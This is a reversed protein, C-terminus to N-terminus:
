VITVTNSSSISYGQLFVISDLAANFGATNDNFAVYTGVPGTTLKFALSTNAAFTTPIATFSTFLSASTLVTNFVGPRDLRDGAQYDTIVDFNAALSDALSTFEFTDISNIGGFGTLTDKGLGGRINNNSTNGTISDNFATGIVDEFQSVTFQLALTAAGNLVSFSVNPSASNALNVVAGTAAAGGTAATGALSLDIVDGGLSFGVITEVGVLQDVGLSGKNVTGQAGLKVPGLMSYNVTDQAGAGGDLLDNGNSGFIIDNGGGGSIANAVSSGILLDDFGSGILNEIDILTDNGASITNQISSTSLDVKVGGTANAYTATDIGGSGNIINNSANGQLIDGFTSGLVNEIGILEDFGSGGTAQAGVIALSVTVGATASTYTVTDNISTGTIRDYADNTSNLIGVNTIFAM